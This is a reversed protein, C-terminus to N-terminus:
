DTASEMAAGVHDVVAAVCDLRIKWIRGDVDTQELEEFYPMQNGQLFGVEIVHAENPDAFMFYKLPDYGTLTSDMLMPEIIPEAIGRLPNSQGASSAGATSTPYTSSELVTRANIWGETYPAMLLVAPMISVPIINQTGDGAALLASQQMLITALNGIGKRAADVSTGLRYDTEHNYNKHADSFLAAGDAMAANALLAKVALRNPMRKAARSFKAPTDSLAGLDDNIIAQRTMNWKKGFTGLQMNEKKESFKAVPYPAGEPILELDGSESMKIRTAIKFDNLQGSKCWKQWTVVAANYADIMAKNATAALIYPFDSTTGTITEGAARELMDSNFRPGRLALDCLALQNTPVHIGARVLSEEAMRILSRGALERAGPAAKDTKVLNARILLSDIAAARFSDRGDQTMTVHGGPRQQERTLLDLLDNRVDDVSKDAAIYGAALDERQAVKCAARIADSQARRKADRAALAAEVAGAVDQAQPQPQATPAQSRAEPAKPTTEEIAIAIGAEILGAAERADIEIESGAVNGGHDRLLKCKRKMTSEKSTKANSDAGSPTGVARGVGVSPDAPIPTLSAELAEWNAAVWAPGRFSQYTESADKLYVWEQVTFGVSVGRLTKDTLVERKAKEAEPTSGFRMELKGKRSAPDLWVRVPAGIIEAPDHNKLIAGVESLRAFNASSADHSLIELEGYVM